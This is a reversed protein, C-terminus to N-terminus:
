QSLGVRSFQKQPSCLARKYVEMTQQVVFESHFEAEVMRRGAKGQSQRKSESGILSEIARALLVPNQPPTLIGNVNNKVVERCGPLDCTVIPRGTAAAELLVKPVGEGYFSPFVIMMSEQMLEHIDTVKGRWDVIGEDHANEIEGLSIFRSNGNILSGAVIFEAAVGKEKLLKAADIFDCIGKDRLLRSAFLIKPTEASAQYPVYPFEHLDVGSGRILYVQDEDVVGASLLINRDDPNQFIFLRGKGGFAFKLIPTMLIRLLRMKFTPSSFLSGLGAITFIVSKYGIIRSVLGVYLSYRITIVHVVDPKLSKIAKAVSLLFKLQAFLNYFHKLRPVDFADIGMDSLGSDTSADHTALTLQWDKEMIGAALPLRHSWFWDMENLIMLVRTSKEIAM